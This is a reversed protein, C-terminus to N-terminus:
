HQDYLKPGCKVEISSTTTTFTILRKSCKGYPKLLMKRRSSGTSAFGISCSEVPRWNPLSTTSIRNVFDVDIAADM